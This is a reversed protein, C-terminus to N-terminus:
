KEEGILEELIEIQALLDSGGWYGQEDSLEEENDKLEEIKEEVLSVPIYNEYILQEAKQREEARGEIYAQSRLNIYAAASDVDMNPNNVVFLKLSKNEEELEKYTKILHELAKCQKERFTVDVQMDLGIVACSKYEDILEELTEINEKM